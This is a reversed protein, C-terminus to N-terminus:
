RRDRGHDVRWSPFWQPAIACSAVPVIGRTAGTKAVTRDSPSQILIRGRIVRSCIRSEGTTTAARFDGHPRSAGPRGARVARAGAHVRYRPGDHVAAEVGVGPRLRAVEPGQRHDPLAEELRDLLGDGLEGPQAVNRHRTQAEFPGEPDREDAVRVQDLLDVAVRDDANLLGGVDEPAGAPQHPLPREDGGAEVAVPQVAARHGAGGDQAGVPEPREQRPDLRQGRVAEVPMERGPRLHFESPGHAAVDGVQGEAQEERVVEPGAQVVDHGPGFAQLVLELLGRGPPDGGRRVRAVEGRGPAEGGEGFAEHGFPPGRGRVSGVDEGWEVFPVAGMQAASVRVRLDAVLEEADEEAGARHRRRDDPDQVGQRAVGGEEAADPVLDRRGASEVDPADVGQRQEVGDDSLGRAEVRGEPAGHAVGALRDREGPVAERRLGHEDEHAVERVAVGGVPGLRLREVDLAEEVAGVRVGM